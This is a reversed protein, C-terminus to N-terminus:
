TKQTISLGAAARNQRINGVTGRAAIINGEMIQVRRMLDGLRANVGRIEKLLRENTIEGAM